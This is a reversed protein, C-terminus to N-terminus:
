VYEEKAQIFLMACFLVMLIAFLAIGFQMVTYQDKLFTNYFYSGSVNKQLMEWNLFYGYNIKLFIAEVYPPTATTTIAGLVAVAISYAGLVFIVLQKLLTFKRDIFWAPIMLSMFAMAPIVYRPGYAWGGWPDGWSSYFFFNLLIMALIISIETTVEKRKKYAVFFAPISLLLIPSFLFTGKDLAVTLRHFGRVILREQLVAGVSKTKEAEAIEKKVEEDVEESLQNLDYRPLLQALRTPSGFYTNNYYGHAVVIAMFIISTIIPTLLVKINFADKVQRIKFTSLLLYIGLPAMLATSPYDIWISAAFSLWPWLTWVWSFKGGQRFKWICYFTTLMLFTSLHHQYLSTAYSLSTTAFAFIFGSLLSQTFSLKLIDKAILYLFYFNLVAFLAMSGFTVLQALGYSKGIWYFPMAVISMGPPFIIFYKNNEYVTDPSAFNALERPLDIRGYEALSVTLAYPAREHSSEFPGPSFALNGIGTDETLPNGEFGRLTVLFLGLCLISILFVIVKKIM